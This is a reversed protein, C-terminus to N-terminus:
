ENENMFIKKIVGSVILIVFFFIVAIACSYGVNRYQFGQEYIMYALTKTSENPGGGTMIYPQTFLKFAQITTILIVFSSVHKIGPLTVNIFKDWFNGGDISAAEYLETSVDQLGALFIMMQYGAAQWISMLIISNMSQNESLLFPQSPIGLSNLFSNILGSDKNYLFTWLIAVVVMSTIVPSFFCIRALKSTRLKTNVLMALALAVATQLPVVIGAFYVTNKLTKYFAPNKLIEIYNQLGIFEKQTVKLMNYHEFSYLFALIVPIILFITIFILAPLVFLIGVAANRSRKTPVQVKYKNKNKSKLLTLIKSKNKITTLM